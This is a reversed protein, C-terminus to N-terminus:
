CSCSFFFLSDLCFWVSTLLRPVNHSFRRSISMRAHVLCRVHHLIHFNSALIKTRGGIPQRQYQHGAVGGLGLHHGNQAGGSKIEKIRKKDKDEDEKELAEDQINSKLRGNRDLFTLPHQGQRLEDEDHDHDDYRGGGERGYKADKTISTKLEEVVFEGIVNVLALSFDLEAMFTYGTCLRILSTASIKDRYLAQRLISKIAPILAHGDMPNQIMLISCMGMIPNMYDWAPTHGRKLVQLPTNASFLMGSLTTKGGSHHHRRYQVYPNSHDFDFSAKSKLAVSKRRPPPKSSGVGGAGDSHMTGASSSIGSEQRQQQLTPRHPSSSSSSRSTTLIPTITPGQDSPGLDLVGLGARDQIVTTSTADSMLSMVGATGGVGAVSDRASNAGSKLNNLSEKQKFQQRLVHQQQQQQVDHTQRLQAQEKRKQHQHHDWEATYKTIKVLFQGMDPLLRPDEFRSHVREVYLALNTLITSVQVPDLDRFIMVRDLIDRIPQDRIHVLRNNTGTGTPGGKGAGGSGSTPDSPVM